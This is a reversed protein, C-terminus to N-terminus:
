TPSGSVCAQRSWGGPRRDFAGARAVVLAAIGLLFWGAAPHDPYLSGTAATVHDSYADVMTFFPHLLVIAVASLGVADSFLARGLAYVGIAFVVLLIAAAVAVGVRNHGVFDQVVMTPLVTGLRMAHHPGPFNWNLDPWLDAAQWVRYSDHPLPPPLVALTLVVASLGVGTM